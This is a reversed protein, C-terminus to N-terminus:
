RAGIKLLSRPAVERLFRTCPDKAREPWRVSDALLVPKMLRIWGAIQTLEGEFKEDITKDTLEAYLRIFYAFLDAVQILGIHRSDAFFPVDIVQDHAPHNRKRSYFMDTAIPPNLVLELLRKQEPKDFIFLTNGKNKPERQYRKQISLIVHMAALSWMNATQFGDLDFQDKEKLLNTKSVAGFTVKHKRQAMWKIIKEVVRIREGADWQRWYDRGRYLAGGKLEDLHGPSITQLEELLESWDAKTRHMRLADVIIGVVVTIEAGHGSEDLYCFKMDIYRVRHISNNTRRILCM